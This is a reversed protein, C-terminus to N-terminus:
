PIDLVYLKCNNYVELLATLVKNLDLKNGRFVLTNDISNYGRHHNSTLVGGFSPNMALDIYVGNPRNIFWKEIREDYHEFHNRFERNSLINDDQINLLKRLREGRLPNTKSWLIKSINAASVLISQISAWVELNDFGTHTAELRKFARQAIKSQLLIESIFITDQFEKM